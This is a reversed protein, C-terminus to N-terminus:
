AILRLIANAGNREKRLLLSEATVIALAKQLEAVHGRLFLVEQILQDYTPKSKKRQARAAAKGKSKKARQPKRGRIAHADPAPRTRKLPTLASM